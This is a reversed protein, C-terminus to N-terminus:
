ISFTKSTKYFITQSLGRLVLCVCFSLWLGNNGMMRFTLFYMAIYGFTALLMSLLMHRSATFGVYVGDWLFAAFSCLPILLVWLMYNGAVAIVSPEDTLIGLFMKGFLAYLLTFLMALVVGIVFLSTLMRHCGSPDHAGVYFGALSEGANAFGDMFYSFLYFFQMLLANAALIENGQRAGASTFWTIIGLLCLTRIFIDRNVNLFSRSNVAVSVIRSYQFLRMSINWQRRMKKRFIFFVALSWGAYQALLTGLAVGAVKMELAYVFFLSLLVNVVNQVLAVTMTIRTKQLGIFWGNFGYLMLVVPAGWICIHFYLTAQEAVEPSPHIIYLAFKLIPIQFLLILFAIVCAFLMSRLLVDAVGAANKAGNEQATFGSTGARLFGFLWYIMSFISGAVAIAGIYLASGMHGVIATDVLSLLPVTVNSVIAPLAIDLIRRNISNIKRM